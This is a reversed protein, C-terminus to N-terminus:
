PSTDADLTTATQQRRSAVLVAIAVGGAAGVAAFAIDGISAHRGGFLFKGAALLMALGVTLAWAVVPHPPPRRVAMLLLGIIASSVLHGLLILWELGSRPVLPALHEPAYFFSRPISLAGPSVYDANGDTTSVEARRMEGRWPGGGRVEDGLVLLGGGWEALADAPLEELLVQRGGVLVRLQDSVSITLAIWQSPRFVDEVLFPPDGNDSSGPRRMWILLDSGDQAVAVDTNWYDRALMMMSASEDTVVTDPKVDLGITLGDERAAGLWSPTGWTRAYNHDGFRLADNVTREVDNAVWRPPDWEFPYYRVVILGALVLLVALVPLSRWRRHDRDNPALDREHTM